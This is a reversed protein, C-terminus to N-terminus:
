QEAVEEMTEALAQEMAPIEHNPASLAHSMVFKVTDRVMSNTLDCGNLYAFEPDMEQLISRVRPEGHQSALAYAVGRPDRNKALEEEESEEVQIEYDIRDVKTLCDVAERRHRDVEKLAEYLDKVARGANELLHPVQTQRASAAEVSRHVAQMFSEKSRQQAQRKQLRARTERLKPAEAAMPQLRQLEIEAEEAKKLRDDLSSDFGNVM